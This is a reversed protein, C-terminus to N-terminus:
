RRKGQNNKMVFRNNEFVFVLKDSHPLKKDITYTNSVPGVADDAGLDDLVLTNTKPSFSVTVFEPDDRIEDFCGLAASKNLFAPYNLYLADNKLEVVLAYTVLLFTNGRSSGLLLYLNKTPSPLKYLETFECELGFFTTDAAPFLAHAGFSGDKRHWQLVPNYIVGATGGSYYSFTYVRILSDPSATQDINDPGDRLDIRGKKLQRVLEEGTASVLSDIDLADDYHWESLM